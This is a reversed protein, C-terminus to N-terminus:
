RPSVPKGRFFRAYRRTSFRINKSLRTGAGFGSPFSRLAATDRPHFRNGLRKGTGARGETRGEESGWGRRANGANWRSLTLRPRRGSKVSIFDNGRFTFRGRRPLSGGGRRPPSRRESGQPKVFTSGALKHGIIVPLSSLRM